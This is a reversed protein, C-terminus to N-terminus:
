IMLNRCNGMELLDMTPQHLAKRSVFLSLSSNTGRHRAIQQRGHGFSAPWHAWLPMDHPCLHLMCLGQIAIYGNWGCESYLGFDCSMKLPVKTGINSLQIPSSM